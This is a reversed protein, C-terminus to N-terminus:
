VNIVVDPVPANFPVAGTTVTEDASKTAPSPTVAVVNVEDLRVMVIPATPATPVQFPATLPLQDAAPLQVPVPVSGGCAAPSAAMKPVPELGTFKSALSDTPVMVNLVAVAKVIEPLEVKVKSLLPLPAKTEM